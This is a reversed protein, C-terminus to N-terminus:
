EANLDNSRTICTAYRPNISKLVTKKQIKEIKQTAHNKPYEGKDMAPAYM